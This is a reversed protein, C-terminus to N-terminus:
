GLLAQRLSLANPTGISALEAAIGNLDNNSVATSGHLMTFMDLALMQQAYKRLTPTSAGQHLEVIRGFLKNSITM